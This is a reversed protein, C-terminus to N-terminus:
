KITSKEYSTEMGMSVRMVNLANNIDNSNKGLKVSQMFYKIEKIYKDNVNEKYEKVIISNKSITGNLIDFTWNNKNSIAQMQRISQRGVYDLHLELLKDKYAAIYVAIDESDIQLDSYRGNLCFVKDPFGFLYILYDWEHILDICVGGGESKHASYVTRYDVDKRWDPLYSSCISRISIIKEKQLIKKAEQIVQTYRLPCAVYINKENNFVSLDYDIKDFVPKEIFFNNSYKYMEKLTNYHMYTPNTIFVADYEECIENTSYMIKKVISSIEGDLQRTTNRIVHIEIDGFVNFLNKIHRKGISGTGIFCVKM